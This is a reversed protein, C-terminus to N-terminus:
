QSRVGIGHSSAPSGVNGFEDLYNGSSNRIRVDWGGKGRFMIRVEEGAANRFLYGSGNRTVTQTFGGQRLTNRISIIPMNRITGSAFLEALEPTATRLGSAVGGPYMIGMYCRPKGDPGECPNFADHWFKDWSAARFRDEDSLFYHRAIKARISEPESVLFVRVVAPGQDQITLASSRGFGSADFVDGIHITPNQFFRNLDQSSVNLIKALSTITDNKNDSEWCMGMGSTCNVQKWLGFPDTAILPTNGVYAYGNWSQPESEGAGANEPDASIFRGQTSSYYRALFYDLSTEGDREKQTLFPYNSGAGADARSVQTKKIGRLAKQLVLRSM